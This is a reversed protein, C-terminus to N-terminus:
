GGGVAELIEIRDGPALAHEAHLSRIIVDGNVAVAVRKGGLELRELLGAITCPGPATLAEGNVELTMENAAAVKVSEAV